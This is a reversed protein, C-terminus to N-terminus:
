QLPVGFERLQRVKEVPLRTGIRKQQSVWLGLKFNDRCVYTIPVDATGNLTIFRRLHSIGRTWEPDQNKNFM